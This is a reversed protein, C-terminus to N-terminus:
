VEGSKLELAELLGDDQTEEVSDIERAIGQQKMELEIAKYRSALELKKEELQLKRLDTEDIIGLTQRQMKQLAELSKTLTLVKKDNLTELRVEVIEEESIGGGHSNKIKEVYTNLEGERMLANELSELLKNSVRLHRQKYRIVEDTLKEATKEAIVQGTQM